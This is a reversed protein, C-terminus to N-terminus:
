FKRKKKAYGVSLERCERLSLLLKFFIFLFLPFPFFIATVISCSKCLLLRSSASRLSSFKYYIFGFLPPHDDEQVCTEVVCAGGFHATSKKEKKNASPLTKIYVCVCCTRGGGKRVIKKNKNYLSVTSRNQLSVFRVSGAVFLVPNSVLLEILCTYIILRYVVCM